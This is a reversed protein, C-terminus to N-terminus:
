RYSREVYECDPEGPLVSGLEERIARAVGERWDEDPLLKESLPLQRRRIAGNPRVQFDEM